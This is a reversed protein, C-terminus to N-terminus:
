VVHGNVQLEGLENTNVFFEGDGLKFSFNVPEVKVRGYHAGSDKEFGNGLRVLTEVKISSEGNVWHVISLFTGVINVHISLFLHRDEGDLRGQYILKAGRLYQWWTTKLQHEIFPYVNDLTLPQPSQVVLNQANTAPLVAALVLLAAFTFFAKSEM